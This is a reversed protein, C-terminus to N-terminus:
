SDSRFDSSTPIMEALTSCSSASGPRRRSRGRRRCRARRALAWVSGAFNWFTKSLVPGVATEPATRSCCIASVLIVGSDDSAVGSPTARTCPTRSMKALAPTRCFVTGTSPTTNSTAPLGRPSSVRWRSCRARRARGDRSAASVAMAPRSRGGRRHRGSGAVELLGGVEPAAPEREPEPVASATETGAITTPTQPGPRGLRRDPRARCRRRAWRRHPLGEELDLAVALERLEHQGGGAPSAQPREM